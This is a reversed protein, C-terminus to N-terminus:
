INNNNVEKKESAPVSEIGVPGLGPRERGPDTGHLRADADVRVKGDGKRRRGVVVHEIGVPRLPPCLDTGAM